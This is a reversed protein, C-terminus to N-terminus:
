ITACWESPLRRNHGLRQRACHEIASGESWRAEAYTYNLGRSVAVFIHLLVSQVRIQDVLPVTDDPTILLCGRGPAPHTQRMTASINQAFEVYLDGSARTVTAGDAEPRPYRGVSAVLTRQARKM